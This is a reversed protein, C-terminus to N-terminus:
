KSTSKFWDLAKDLNFSIGGRVHQTFPLPLLTLGRRGALRIAV